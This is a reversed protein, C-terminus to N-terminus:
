LKTRPAPRFILGYHHAGAPFERQLQFGNEKALELAKEKGFFMEKSPGFSRAGNSRSANGIPDAWDIIALRGAPKLVRGAETLVAAKNEIQFLLNSILVLDLTKDALKSADARELDTWIVDVNKFGRRHAENKVRRLLDRQVDIAYVHGSNELAEAIHLVYIGSGSGLDAVSMGPEIGLAAVNRRPHAFNATNLPTQASMAYMIYRWRGFTVWLKEFRAYVSKRFGYIIPAHFKVM